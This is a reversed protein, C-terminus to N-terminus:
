NDPVAAPEAPLAPNCRQSRTPVLNTAPVTFPQSALEITADPLGARSVKIAFSGATRTSRVMIRNIGADTMISDTYVGQNPYAIKAQGSNYGGIWTGAGSHQFTLKTTDIPVRLGAADVVEVDVMAIDAGDAIWGKPGTIPTLKLAAPAGTTVHEDTVLTKGTADLGVARIKGAKFQV